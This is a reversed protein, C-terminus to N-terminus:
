SSGCFSGYPHTPVFWFFAGMLVSFTGVRLFLKIWSPPPVDVGAGLVRWVGMSELGIMTLDYLDKGQQLRRRRSCHVGNHSSLEVSSQLGSGNQVRRQDRFYLCLFSLTDMFLSMFYIIHEQIYVYFLYHTWSYLCLMSLTDMFVSMFYIIHGIFLSMFYFIQGHIFVYM